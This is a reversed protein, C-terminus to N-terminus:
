LSPLNLPRQTHTLSSKFPPDSSSVDRVSAPFALSGTQNIRVLVVEQLAPVLSTVLSCLQFFFQSCFPVFPRLVPDIPIQLCQFCRLKCGGLLFTCRLM